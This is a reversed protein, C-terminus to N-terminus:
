QFNFYVKQSDVDVWLPCYVVVGVIVVIAVSAIWAIIVYRSAHNDVIPRRSRGLKENRLTCVPVFIQVTFRWDRRHEHDVRNIHLRSLHRCDCVRWKIPRREWRQEDVSNTPIADVLAWNDMTREIQWGVIYIVYQERSDFVRKRLSTRTTRCTM